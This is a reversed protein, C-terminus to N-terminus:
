REERKASLLTRSCAVLMFLGLSLLLTGCPEPVQARPRSGSEYGGDQFASVLDGSTFERDANWDGQSWGSNNAIADEYQGEQFVQVMDASNFEGDLTADGIWTQKFEHIWYVLDAADVLENGDADYALELSAAHIQEMLLDVDAVSLVDDRSFDGPLLAAANIAQAAEILAEGSLQHNFIMLVPETAEYTPSTFRAFFGYAGHSAAPDDDLLYRLTHLHEGLEDPMPSAVRIANPVPADTQFLTVDGTEGAIWLSAEHPAITVARETAGWYWLWRPEPESLQYNPRAVVDLFLGSGPQMGVIDYGPLNTLAVRAGTPLTFREMQADESVDYYVRSAFGRQDEVGNSAVLRGAEVNLRVPQGHGMARPPTGFLTALLLTHTLLFVAPFRM